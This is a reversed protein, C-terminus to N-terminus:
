MANTEYYRVVEDVAERHEERVVRRTAADGLAWPV